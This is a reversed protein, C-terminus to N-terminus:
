KGSHREFWAIARADRAFANRSIRHNDYGYIVLEYAKGQRQLQGALELSQDVPMSQDNGGHMILLPTDIREAWTVASRRGIIEKPKDRWEPWITDALPEYQEPNEEILRSLNTFGGFTAAARAPFGDRIAQLVMMGGRSEGYLFLQDSDVSALEKALEAVNMLDNLDDGGMQDHGEAGESGRYMPALVTYGARALRHFSTIHEPATDQRIYSGRNFVITPRATVATRSRYLHAVVEIGDSLYTLRELVFNNDARADVYLEQPAYLHILRRDAIESFPPLVITDRSLLIENGQDGDLGHAYSNPLFPTLMVVYLLLNKMGQNKM